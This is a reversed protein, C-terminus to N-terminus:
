KIFVVSFYLEYWIKMSRHLFILKSNMKYSVSMSFFFKSICLYGSLNWYKFIFLYYYSYLNQLKISFHYLGSQVDPRILDEPM